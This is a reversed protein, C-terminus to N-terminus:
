SFGCDQQVKYKVSTNIFGPIKQYNAWRDIQKIFAAAATDTVASWCDFVSRIESHQDRESIKRKWTDFDFIM